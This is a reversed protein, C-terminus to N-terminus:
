SKIYGMNVKKEVREFYTQLDGLLNDLERLQQRKVYIDSAISEKKKRGRLILFALFIFAIAIVTIPLWNQIIWDKMKEGWVLHNIFERNRYNCM